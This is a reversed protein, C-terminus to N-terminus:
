TRHRPLRHVSARPGALRRLGRLLRLVRRPGHIRPNTAGELEIKRGAELLAFCRPGILAEVNPLLQRVFPWLEREFPHMEIQLRRNGRTRWTDRIGGYEISVGDGGRGQLRSPGLRWAAYILLDLPDLDGVFIATTGADQCLGRIFRIQQPVPLGYHQLVLLDNPLDGGAWDIWSRKTTLVLARPRKADFLVKPYPNVGARLAATDEYRTERARRRLRQWRVALVRSRSM